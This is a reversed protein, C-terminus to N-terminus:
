MGGYTDIRYELMTWESTSLDWKTSLFMEYMQAGYEGDLSKLDAPYGVVGLPLTGAVPTDIFKFPTVGTFPKDLKMFSVDSQRNGKATLWASTTAVRSVTRFQCNASKTSKKGDYGIYAKVQTCTGLKHAWDFACHGATM